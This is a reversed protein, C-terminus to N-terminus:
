RLARSRRGRGTGPRVRAADRLPKQSGELGARLEDIVARPPANPVGPVHQLADSLAARIDPHTARECEAMFWDTATRAGRLTAVLQALTSGVVRLVRRRGDSRQAARPADAVHDIVATLLEFLPTPERLVAIVRPDGLADLATAVSGYCLERDREELWVAAHAVLEDAFGERAALSVLADLAGVRVHSREDAALQQLLPWNTEADRGARIRQALVHAAAIPLFVRADDPAADEAAWPAILASVPGEAQALEVGVAAALRLNPRVGPLGSHNALAQELEARTASTPRTLAVQLLSRLAESKLGEPARTMRRLTGIFVASVV